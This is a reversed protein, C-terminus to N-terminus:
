TKIRTTLGFRDSPPNKDWDRENHLRDRHNQQQHFM